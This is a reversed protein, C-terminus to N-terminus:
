TIDRRGAPMLDASVLISINVKLQLRVFLTSTEMKPRINHIKGLNRIVPSGQVCSFRIANRRNRTEGLLKNGTM